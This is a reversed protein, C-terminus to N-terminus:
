NISKVAVIRRRCTSPPKILSYQRAAHPEHGVPGHSPNQCPVPPRLSVVVWHPSALHSTVLRGDDVGVQPTSPRRTIAAEMMGVIILPLVCAADMMIPSFPVAM